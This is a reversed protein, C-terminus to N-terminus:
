RALREALWRAAAATEFVRQPATASGGVRLGIEPLASDPNPQLRINLAIADHGPDLSGSLRAEGADASLIAEDIVLSGAELTFGGALRDFTTAGSSLAARLAALAEAQGTAARLGAMAGAFDFGALVGQGIVFSGTGGLTARWAAIGYGRAALRADMAVQGAALDFPLGTLPGAITADRMELNAEAVPLPATMDIAASIGLRGGAWRAALRPLGLKGEGIRLETEVEQLAVPGLTVQGAGVTLRASITRLLGTPVLGARLEGLPLDLSEFALKGTLTPVDGLVLALDGGGRVSGAVLEAGTIAVRAPALDAQGLLSLSGDGVWNAIGGLGAALLLRRAGPHRLALSGSYHAAALDLGGRAELRAGALEAELEVALGAEGTQGSLRFLAPGRWLGPEALVSPLLPLAAEAEPTALEVRLDTVRPTPALIAAGALVGRAGGLEGALRRISLRGAELTADLSFSRAEIGHLVFLPTELRLNADFGTLRAALASPEALAPAIWSEPEVREVTLGAGFSPRAASTNLVLGGAMRVGDLVADLGGLQLLGPAITVQASAKAARLRGAAAWDTPLALWDLMARLDAAELTALGELRLAGDAQRVVGSLGAVAAGPLMASAEDIAAQGTEIRGQLKLDRLSGGRLTASAASLEVGVPVSLGSVAGALPALWPDLDVLGFALAIDLRAPWPRFRASGSGTTGSRMAGASGTGGSPASLTLRLGDAVLGGPSVSLQDAEMLMPVAPAPMLSALDDITARGRGAFTLTPLALLGAADIEFSPGSRAAVAVELRATGAQDARDLRASLRLQRGAITAEGELAFPGGSGEGSVRAAIGSIQFGGIVLSGDEIRVDANAIWAPALRTPFPPPSIGSLVIRPRVLVIDTAIVRGALLPWFRLGLRVERAEISFGDGVDVVSLGRAAIMPAPLLRLSFEERLQVPRGLVSAAAAEIEAHRQRWDIRGPLLWASAGVGGILVLLVVLMFTRVRM